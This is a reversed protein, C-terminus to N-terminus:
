TSIHIASRPDSDRLAAKPKSQAKRAKIAKQEDVKCEMLCGVHRFQNVLELTKGNFTIAITHYLEKKNVNKVKKANIRM